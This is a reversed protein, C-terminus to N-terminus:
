QKTSKQLLIKKRVVYWIGFGALLLPWIEFCVLILQRMFSNGSRLSDALETGFHATSANPNAIIKQVVIEPSQVAVSCWLFQSRFKIEEKSARNSAAREIGLSDAVAKSAIASEDIIQAERYEQTNDEELLNLSLIKGDLQLLANVLQPAEKKPIRFEFRAEQHTRVVQCISDSSHPLQKVLDEKDEINLASSHGKYQAITTNLKKCYDSVNKAEVHMDGHHETVRNKEEVFMTNPTKADLEKSANDQASVADTSAETSSTVDLQANKNEGCGIILTSTITLCLIGMIFNKKM